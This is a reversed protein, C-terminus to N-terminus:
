AAAEVSPPESDREGAQGQALDDDLVAEILEAATAQVAQLSEILTDRDGQYLQIYDSSATGCEIGAAQCVVYATAEAQTERVTRSADRKGSGHHLIEHALEHVLTSFTEAPTLDDRLMIRGGLSAGQVTGMSGVSEVVIGKGSAFRKLRDLREGPLGKARPFEPLSAGDTQSVDFVHAAKFTLVREKEGDTTEDEYRRIIPAMIVIGKQGQRVYRGLKQWTKFGAVHTADPRQMHILLTNGFSYRHFRAIASLYDRLAQSRGAELAAILQDTAQQVRKHIICTKM